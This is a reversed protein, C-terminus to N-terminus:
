QLIEGDHLRRTFEEVPLVKISADSFARHGRYVGYAAQIKKEAMLGKLGKGYEGRWEIASKIEVGVAKKGRSWILDVEVGAPTRYYSLEGGVDLYHLAARAENFVFTELLIGREASEIKDRLLGLIARVVGTDFFYFKPSQKERVKLRPQWGPVWNGILTDCLVSFYREVSPRPVGADRSLGAVNVVQGNVLAAVKLFRAFSELNRALAEQQIEEKLYTGVYAELTGIAREPKACVLPLSGFQLVRELDFSPGLEKTVLPFFSKQLARGALLNAHGAKLKRASSGTLCFRIEDGRQHMVAQVEDLLAPVKQVEDLVVWAGKPLGEVERRFRHPEGLYRILVDNKLFDFRTARAYNMDLWFSKGTGRPGFLFFSAKQPPFIRTFMTLM